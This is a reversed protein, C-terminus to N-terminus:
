IPAIAKSVGCRTLCGANGLFQFHRCNSGANTERARATLLPWVAGFHRTATARNTQNLKFIATSQQCCWRGKQVAGFNSSGPEIGSTFSNVRVGHLV